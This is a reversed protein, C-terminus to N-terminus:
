RAGRRGGAVARIAQAIEDPTASEVLYGHAGATLAAAVEDPGDFTPLVLIRTDRGPQRIGITAGIGDGDPM